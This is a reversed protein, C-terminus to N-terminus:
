CTQEDWKRVYVPQVNFFCVWNSNVERYANCRVGHFLCYTTLAIDVVEKKTQNWRPKPVRIVIGVDTGSINWIERFRLPRRTWRRFREECRDFFRKWSSRTDTHSDGVEYIDTFAVTRSRGEDHKRRMAYLVPFSTQRLVIIKETMTSCLGM